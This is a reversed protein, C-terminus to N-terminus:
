SPTVAGRVAVAPDALLAARVSAGSEALRRAQVLDRPRGVAVAAVIRQDNGDTPAARGAASGAASGALGFVAWTDDTAPDGRWVLREAAPWWGVHQLTRGFQDSWFYPVPDYTTAPRQTDPGQTAPEADLADDLLSAAATAPAHLATDWHEVRMRRGYRRSEWAACDGVALLGPVSTRLAGDVLVAGDPGLAVGSGALWGTAPRTGVACLAVDAPLWTGDTLTVAGREAGVVVFGTRLEVGAEDWWRSTATAVEAPLATAVPTPGAELVTVQCGARVGATAVEAGIWGAGAVVVRAGPRLAARLTQADEHTRLTLWEGALRVASVGTAVVMRDWTMDGADTDLVGPRLGTATRGLLLEVDLTDWDAELTTDAVSGALVEKSLPPRDYPLHQETGVLTLRGAYGRARLAVLTQLGGLGAGVVVV